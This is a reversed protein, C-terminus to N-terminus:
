MMLELLPESEMTGTEPRTGYLEKIRLLSERVESSSAIPLESPACGHKATFTQIAQTVQRQHREDSSITSQEPSWEEDGIYKGSDVIDAFYWFPPHMSHKIIDLTHDVHELANHFDVDMLGSALLSSRSYYSFAGVCHRYLMITAVGDYVVSAIPKPTGDSAKNMRGHQSFNLHQVGSRRSADVYAEFASEDKIFIDDEILFVHECGQDLLYQLAKNKSKGVGINEPNHHMAHEPISSFADYREGDNVVYVVDLINHPLSEYLKLLLHPRNFTLIGCGTKKRDIM